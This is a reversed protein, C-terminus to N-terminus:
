NWEDMKEIGYYDQIKQTEEEKRVPSRPIQSEQVIRDDIIVNNCERVGTIVPQAIEETLRLIKDTSELKDSKTDEEVETEEIKNCVLGRETLHQLKCKTDECKGTKLDSACVVLEQLPSGYKCNLGGACTKKICGECMKTFINLIDYYYPNTKFDIDDFKLKKNRLRNVIYQRNIDMKQESLSHAYRCRDGYKCRGNKLINDCLVIKIKGVTTIGRVYPAPPADYTVNSPKNVSIEKKPYSKKKEKVVEPQTNRKIYKQTKRKTREDQEEDDLLLLQAFPNVKKAM